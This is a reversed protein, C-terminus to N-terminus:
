SPKETASLVLEKLADIEEKNLSTFSLGFGVGPHYSAVEGRLPLWKGSPLQIELNVHENLEVKAYTNVFCGGLSVDDVRAEHGGSMSEWKADLLIRKRTSRRREDSMLQARERGHLREPWQLRRANTAPFFIGM